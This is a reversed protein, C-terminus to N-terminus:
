WGKLKGYEYGGGALAGAAGLYGATRAARAKSRAAGAEMGSIVSDDSLGLMTLANQRANILGKFEERSADLELEVATDELVDLPSGALDLGSAGYSTRLSALQRRNERRKDEAAIRGLELAQQRDQDAVKRNREAVRMSYISAQEQAEAAGAAANGAAMAGAASAAIAGALLIETGTM